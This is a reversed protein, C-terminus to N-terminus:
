PALGSGNLDIKCVDSAQNEIGAAAEVVRTSRLELAASSISEYDAKSMGEPREGDTFMSEDAGADDLAKELALLATVYTDWEDVMDDPAEARLREFVDITRSLDGSGPDGAGASLSELNKQEDKLASCYKEQQSSCGALPLALLLLVTAAAPWRARPV